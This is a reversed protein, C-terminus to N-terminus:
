TNSAVGSDTPPTTKAALEAKEHQEKWYAAVQQQEKIDQSMQEQKRYFGDLIEMEDHYRDGPSQIFDEEATPEGNEDYKGPYTDSLWEDLRKGADQYRRIQEEKSVYGDREVEVPYEVGEGNSTHPLHKFATSEKVECVEILRDLKELINYFITSMDDEDPILEAIKAM